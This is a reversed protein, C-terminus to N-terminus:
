KKGGLKKLKLEAKEKWFGDKQNLIFNKLFNIEAGKLTQAETGYYSKILDTNGSKIIYGDDPMIQIREYDGMGAVSLLGANNRGYPDTKVTKIIRAQFLGLFQVDGAKPDIPFATYSTYPDVPYVIQDCQRYTQMVGNVMRTQNYCYVYSVEGIAYKDSSNEMAYASFGSFSVGDAMFLESDGEKGAAVPPKLTYPSTKASTTPKNISEVKVLKHDSVLVTYIADNPNFLKSLAGDGPPNVLYLGFAVVGLKKEDAPTQPKTLRYMKPACANLFLFPVLFGIKKM